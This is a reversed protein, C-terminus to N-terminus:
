YEVDLYRRLISLGEPPSPLLMQRWGEDVSVTQPKLTQRTSVADVREERWGQLGVCLYGGELERRGHHM